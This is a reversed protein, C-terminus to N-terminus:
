GSLRIQLLERGISEFVELLEAGSDVEFNMHPTSACYQLMSRTHADSVGFGISYVKIGADTAERCATRSNQNMANTLATEQTSQPNLRGTVSYGWPTYESKNLDDHDIVMISNSGSALLIMYKDVSGYAGGETFPVGPSLVRLGWMIGEAINANGKSTMADLASAVTSKSNTLPTLANSNCNM